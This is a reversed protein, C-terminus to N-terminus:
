GRGPRPAARGARQAALATSSERAIRERNAAKSRERKAITARSKRRRYRGALGELAARNADGALPQVPHLEPVSDVVGAAFLKAAFRAADDFFRPAHHDMATQLFKWEGVVYNRNIEHVFVAYSAAFGVDFFFRDGSVVPRRVYRSARLWGTDVPTLRMATTMMDSAALYIGAAFADPMRRAIVQLRETAIRAGTLRVSIFGSM